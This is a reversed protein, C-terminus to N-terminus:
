TVGALFRALVPALDSGAAVPTRLGRHTSLARDLEALWRDRVELFAPRAAVPDVPLEEDTEPSRLRVPEAGALELEDRDYVQFARLDVRQRVLAALEPGWAAPDEMFDSVVAVLSRSRARAGVERLAPGLEARGAPRVAALALFLRALHGRGRRPPLPAPPHAEGALITLGVPGGDLHVVFALTAALRVAIEFKAPVSGLDASADLVITAALEQEARYRRVVLRDTRGLVRWDLDRLSDGRDYPKYDLFEVEHGARLSRHAGHQLGWVAERAHLHLARVRELVEPDWPGVPNAGAGSV